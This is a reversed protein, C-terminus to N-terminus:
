QRKGTLERRRDAPLVDREFLEPDGLTWTERVQSAIVRRMTHGDMFWLVAVGRRHDIVPWERDKRAIRWAIVQHRSEEADWRWFILQSLYRRGEEDHCHNVEVRDVQDTVVLPVPQLALLLLAVVVM